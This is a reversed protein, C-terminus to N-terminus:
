LETLFKVRKNKQLNKIERLNNKMLNVKSYKSVSVLLM